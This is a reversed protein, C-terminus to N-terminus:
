RGNGLVRQILNFKIIEPLFFLDLLPSGTSIAGNSQPIPSGECVISVLIALIVVAQILFKNSWKASLYDICNYFCVYESHFSIEISYSSVSIFNDLRMIEKSIFKKSRRQLTAWSISLSITEWRLIWVSYQIKKTRKVFKVRHLWVLQLFLWKRIHLDFHWTYFQGSTEWSCTWNQVFNPTM